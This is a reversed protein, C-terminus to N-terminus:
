TLVVKREESTVWGGEEKRKTARQILKGEMRRSL